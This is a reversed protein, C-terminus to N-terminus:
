VRAAKGAEIDKRILETIFPRLVACCPVCRM